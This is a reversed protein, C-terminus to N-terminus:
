IVAFYGDVLESFDISSRYSNEDAIKIKSNIYSMYFITQFCNSELVKLLVSNV